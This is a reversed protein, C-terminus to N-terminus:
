WVLLRCQALVPPTTLGAFANRVPCVSISNNRMYMSLLGAYALSPCSRKADDDLHQHSPGLGAELLILTHNAAQPTM